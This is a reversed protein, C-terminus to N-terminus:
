CLVASWKVAPNERRELGRRLSNTMVKVRNISALLDGTSAPPDCIAVSRTSRAGDVGVLDHNASHSGSRLSYLSCCRDRALESSILIGIAKQTECEAADVGNARRSLLGPKVVDM